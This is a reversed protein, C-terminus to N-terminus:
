TENTEKDLCAILNLTEGPTGVRITQGLSLISKENVPNEDVFTGYTSYDNLVVSKGELQVTCHKRSVGAIEGEIKIGSGDAARQLGIVVPKETIPYALNRYLIHTPRTRGEFEQRPEEHSIHGQAALPRSTLFPSSNGTQPEFLTSNFQVIGLAGAGPQLEIIKSDKIGALLDIIGPLRALRNSLMLVPGTGASGSRDFFRAILRRIEEFVPAGRKSFLNRTLNVRYTKSGGTMEFHVEPNRCLQRLIGPLRDYLEQESAAQHLPDFRTSRVFEEAIADVWRRYLKSLGNGEASMSDKQTLQEARELRTVEFRHLHLDLHLLLGEPLREPVAAVALPMFGKVPIALEQTIGLIFGLHERTYFSPVAIVMEKGHQKVTQWIHAFHAFAIEAHNQAFLNPQDLPEVNLQDWFQNLIQRPYLHAKREAAKGVILRNREPLAFGPSEVSNGDIEILGASKSAAVLIGADSLEVGLVSM